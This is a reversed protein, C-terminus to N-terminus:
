GYRKQNEIIYISWLIQFAGKMSGHFRWNKLGTSWALIKLKQFVGKVEYLCTCPMWPKLVNMNNGVNLKSKGHPAYYQTRNKVTYDPQEQVHTSNRRCVTVIIQEVVGWIGGESRVRRYVEDSAVRSPQGASCSLIYQCIIDCNVLMPMNNWLYLNIWYIIHTCPRWNHFYDGATWM